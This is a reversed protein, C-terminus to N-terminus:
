YLIINYYKWWLLTTYISSDVIFVDKCTMNKHFIELKSMYNSNLIFQQVILSVILGDVHKTCTTLILLSPHFRLSKLLGKNLETCEVLYSLLSGEAFIQLAVKIGDREAMSQRWIKKPNYVPHWQWVVVM